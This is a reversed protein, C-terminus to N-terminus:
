AGLEKLLWMSYEPAKQCNKCDAYEWEWSFGDSGYLLVGQVYYLTHGCITLVSPRETIGGASNMTGSITLLREIHADYDAFHTIM